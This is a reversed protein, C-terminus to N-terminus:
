EFNGLIQAHNILIKSQDDLEVPLIQNNQQRICNMGYLERIESKINKADVLESDLENIKGVNHDIVDTGTMKCMLNTDFKVSGTFNNNTTNTLSLAKGRTLYAISKKESQNQENIKDVNLYNNIDRADSKKILNDRISVSKNLLKINKWKTLYYNIVLMHNFSIAKFAVKFKLMIM